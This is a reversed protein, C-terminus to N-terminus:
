DVRDVLVPKHSGRIVADTVSGLAMRALGGRGHSAMVILDADGAADIIAQSAEGSFVEKEVPIDPIQAAVEDLYLRASAM